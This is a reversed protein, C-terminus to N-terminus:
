RASLGPLNRAGPVDPLNPVGPTGRPTPIGNSGPVGPLQLPPPQGRDGHYQQWWEEQCFPCSGKGPSGKGPGRYSPKPGKGGKHRDCVDEQDGRRSGGAVSANYAAGLLVLGCCGAILGRLLRRRSDSRANEGTSSERLETM